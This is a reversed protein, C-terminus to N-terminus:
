AKMQVVVRHECNAHAPLSPITDYDDVGFTEGAYERCIDNSAEEPLVTIEIDDPNVDEFEGGVLDDMWANTGSDAGSGCTYRSIQEGKWAARKGAWVAIEKRAAEECGDLTDHAQLWTDVFSSVESELDAQYTVIIGKVEQESRAQLEEIMEDPPTWSRGDFGATDSAKRYSAKASTLRATSLATTMSTIESESLSFDATLQTILDQEDM